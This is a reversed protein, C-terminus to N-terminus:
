RRAGLASRTHSHRRVADFEASLSEAYTTSIPLTTVADVAYNCNSNVGFRQMVLVYADARM